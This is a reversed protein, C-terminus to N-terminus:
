EHWVKVMKDWVYTMNYQLAVREKVNRRCEEKLEEDDLMRNIACSLQDVNQPDILIGYKKGDEEELINPIAGVRTAIIACGCAMSELMVIPFGETRSPLVFVDCKLMADIVQEGSVEGVIELWEAYDSRRILERRMEPSVTGLMRLHFNNVHKGAEILEYIGKVDWCQGVFLVERPIRIQEGAKRVQTVVKESLPNPVYCVHKYGADLLARYSFVDIVIIRDAMNLVVKMIKAEWGGNRMVEPVRGYHFHLVTKIGRKRAYKLMLIDKAFSISGTSVVHFVDYKENQMMKKQLQYFRWYDSLGQKIRKWTSTLNETFPKRDMPMLVMECDKQGNKKYYDWVTHAWSTIGGIPSSYPTAFLVRM